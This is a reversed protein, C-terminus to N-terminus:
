AMGSADSTATAPIGDSRRGGGDGLPSIMLRSVSVAASAETQSRPDGDDAAHDVCEGAVEAGPQELRAICVIRAPRGAAETHVPVPRELDGAREHRRGRQGTQEADPGGHRRGAAREVPVAVADEAVRDRGIRQEGLRGGGRGPASPRTKRGYRAPSREGSQSGSARPTSAPSVSAVTAAVDPPGDDLCRREGDPVHRRRHQRRAHLHGLHAHAAARGRLRNQFPTL